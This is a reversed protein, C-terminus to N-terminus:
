SPNRLMYLLVALCTIANNLDRDATFPITVTGPEDDYTYHLTTSRETREAGDVQLPADCHNRSWSMTIAVDSEVLPAITHTVLPDDACFVIGECNFLIKAKEQAKQEMSSFGDNHESGLNTIIGITPRIMSQLNDMEGVTTAM